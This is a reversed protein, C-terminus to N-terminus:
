VNDTDLSDHKLTIHLFKYVTICHKIKTKIIKTSLLNVNYSLVSYISFCFHVVDQLKMVFSYNDNAIDMYKTLVVGGFLGWDIGATQYAPLPWSYHYEYSKYLVETINYTLCRTLLRKSKLQLNM